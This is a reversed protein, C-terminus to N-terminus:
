GDISLQSIYIKTDYAFTVIGNEQNKDFITKAHVMMEDFNEDGVKPVYSTSQLRGSLGTWDVSQRNPLCMIDVSIPSFFQQISEDTVGEACIENYDIGFTQLLNECDRMFDSYSNDRLNWLLVIYADPKLIRSFESKIKAQDFWHFAQAVTIIDVSHDTLTTKESSGNISDFGKFNRLYDEGAKRMNENPEVGLVQNGNELLLRTFIGTGSGIDAIVSKKSLACKNKLIAIVEIPYHPRFKVYNEVTLSFRDKSSVKEQM